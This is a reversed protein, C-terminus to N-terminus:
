YLKLGFVLSKLSKDLLVFSTLSVCLFFLSMDVELVANRGNFDVVFNHYM